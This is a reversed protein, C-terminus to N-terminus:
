KKATLTAPYSIMLIIKAVFSLSFSIQLEDISM